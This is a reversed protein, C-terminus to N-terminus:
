TLGKKVRSRPKSDVSVKDNDSIQEPMNKIERVSAKKPFEKARLLEVPYELPFTYPTLLNKHRWTLQLQQIDPNWKLNPDIEAGPPLLKRTSEIDVPINTVFDSM